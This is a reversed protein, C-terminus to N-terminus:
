KVRALASATQMHCVNKRFLFRLSKFPIAMEVTYGAAGIKGQSTWVADYSGDGNGDANLMGDMQVGLPNVCFLYGSQHDNFTDLAIGIWDDADINDRKSLSAKIRAPESDLCNFGFYLYDRDYLVFVETKESPEKDFDPKFTKFAALPTAKRWEPDDLKGDIVPPKDTMAPRHNGETGLLPLAMLLLGFVMGTLFTLRM